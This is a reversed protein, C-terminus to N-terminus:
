FIILLVSAAPVFFAVAAVVWVTPKSSLTAGSLAPNLESSQQASSTDVSNLATSSDSDNDSDSALSSGTSHSNESNSAKSSDDGSASSSGTSHSNESNSAKSSDDGSASSSGTSYSNESNSAKSSDDGSASSSGTSHSNESNSAKSSDDGSTCRSSEADCTLVRRLNTQGLFDTDKYNSCVYMETLYPNHSFYTHGDNAPNCLGYYYLRFLKNSRTIDAHISSVNKGIKLAELSDCGSFAGGEITTVSDPVTFDTVKQAVKFLTTKDYNFLGGFQASYYANSSHVRFTDVNSLSDFYRIILYTIGADIQVTKVCGSYSSGWPPGSYEMMPGQGSIQLTCDYSGGYMTIYYKCNGDHSCSGSDVTEREVARHVFNEDVDVAFAGCVLLAAAVFIFKM